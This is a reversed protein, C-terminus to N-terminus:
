VNSVILLLEQCNTVILSLVCFLSGALRGSVKRSVTFTCGWFLSGSLSGPGEPVAAFHFVVLCHKRSRGALIGAVKRSRGSDLDNSNTGRQVLNCSGAQLLFLVLEYRSEKCPPKHRIDYIYIYIYIYIPYGQSM